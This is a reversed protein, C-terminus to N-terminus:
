RASQEVLFADIEKRSDGKIQLFARMSSVEGAKSADENGEHIVSGRPPCPPGYRGSIGHDDPALPAVGTRQGLACLRASSVANGDCGQMLATPTM